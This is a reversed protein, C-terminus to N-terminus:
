LQCSNIIMAPGVSELATLQRIPFARYGAPMAGPTHSMTCQVGMLVASAHFMLAHAETLANGQSCSVLQSAIQRQCPAVEADHAAASLGDCRGPEDALHRRPYGGGEVVEEEVECTLASRLRLM